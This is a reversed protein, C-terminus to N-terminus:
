VSPESKPSSMVTRVLAQESEVPCWFKCVYFPDNVPMVKTWNLLLKVSHLCLSLSQFFFRYNVSKLRAAVGTLLCGQAWTSSNEGKKDKFKYTLPTQTQEQRPMVCSTTTHIELQGQCLPFFRRGPGKRVQFFHSCSLPFPFKWKKLQLFCWVGSITRFYFYGHLRISSLLVFNVFVGEAGTKHCHFWLSTHCSSCQGSTKGKCFKLHRYFRYKDCNSFHKCKLGAETEFLTPAISCSFLKVAKREEWLCLKGGIESPKSAGSFM